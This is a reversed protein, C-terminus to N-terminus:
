GKEQGLTLKVFRRRFLCHESLIVNRKHKATLIHRNWDGLKSCNFHCKECCFKPHTKSTFNNPNM